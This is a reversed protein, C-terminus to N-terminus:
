HAMLLGGTSPFIANHYLKQCNKILLYEGKPYGVDVQYAEQHLQSTGLYYKASQTIRLPEIWGVLKPCWPSM